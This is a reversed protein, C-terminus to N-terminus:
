SFAKHPDWKEIKHKLGEIQKNNTREQHKILLPIIHRYLGFTFVSLFLHMYHTFKFDYEQQELFENINIERFDVGGSNSIFWFHVVNKNRLYFRYNHIKNYLNLEDMMFHIKPLPSQNVDWLGVEKLWRNFEPIALQQEIERCSEIREEIYDKKQSENKM